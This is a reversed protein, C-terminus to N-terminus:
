WKVNEVKGRQGEVKGWGWKDRKPEGMQREGQGNGKVMKGKGM